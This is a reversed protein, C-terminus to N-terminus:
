ADQYYLNMIASIRARRAYPATPIGDGNEIYAQFAYGHSQWDVVSDLAGPSSGRFHLNKPCPVRIARQVFVKGDRGVFQPNAVGPIQGTTPDYTALIPSPPPIFKHRIVKYISYSGRNFNHMGNNAAGTLRTGGTTQNMSLLIENSDNTPDGKKKYLMIVVNFPFYSSRDTIDTHVQYKIYLGKVQITSGKYGQTGLGRTFSIQQMINKIGRGMIYDTVPTNPDLPGPFPPPAITGSSNLGGGYIYTDTLLTFAKQQTEVKPMNAVKYAVRRLTKNVRKQRVYRQITTAAFKRSPLPYKRRFTRKRKRAFSARSRYSTVYGGPM